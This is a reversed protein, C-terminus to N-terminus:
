AVFDRMLQAAFSKTSQMNMDYGGAGGHSGSDGATSSGMLFSATQEASGGAGHPLGLTLSVGSNGAFAFPESGFQGYPGPAFLSYGGGDQQQHHHHLVTPTPWRDLRIRDAPRWWRRWWETDDM